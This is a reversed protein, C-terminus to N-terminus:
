NSVTIRGTMGPHFRCIYDYTQGAVEFTHEYEGNPAVEVDPWVGPKSGDQPTITHPEHDGVWRVTTGPEITVSSPSFLRNSMQIERVDDEPGTGDDDDEGCAFGAALVLAFVGVLRLVRSEM